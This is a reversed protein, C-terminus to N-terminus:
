SAPSTMWARCTPRRHHHRPASCTKWCGNEASSRRRARRNSTMALVSAQTLVGRRHTGELSVKQFNEGDVGSIGYFKALRGNVFTYDASLFDLVSRDEHMIYSCFLETEKEISAALPHRLCSLAGQGASDDATPPIQAM